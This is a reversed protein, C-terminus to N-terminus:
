SVPFSVNWLIQSLHLYNNRNNNLNFTDVTIIYKSGMQISPDLSSKKGSPM